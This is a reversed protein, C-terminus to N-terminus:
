QRGSVTESSYAFSTGVAPCRSPDPNNETTDAEPDTVYTVRVQSGRYNIEVCIFVPEEGDIVIGSTETLFLTDYQNGSFRTYFDVNGFRRGTANFNANVPQNYGTASFSGGDFGGSWFASQIEAPEANDEEPPRAIFQASRFVTGTAPGLQSFNSTWDLLPYVWIQDPGPGQGMDGERETFRIIANNSPTNYTAPNRSTVSDRMLRKGDNFTGVRDTNILYHLLDFPNRAAVYTKGDASPTLGMLLDLRERVESASGKDDEGEAAELGQYFDYFITRSLVSMGGDDRIEFTDFSDSVSTAPNFASDGSSTDPSCGTTLLVLPALAAFLRLHRM